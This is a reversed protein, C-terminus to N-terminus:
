AVRGPQGDPTTVPLGAAEWAQMGGDLDEAGLGASVLFAHAKSSRGGSRCVTVPTKDADLEGVRDALQSLPIHLAGEIRGAAWEDDERVDVIQIRDSQAQATVADM